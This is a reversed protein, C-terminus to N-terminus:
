VGLRTFIAFLVIFFEKLVECGFVDGMGREESFKVEKPDIVVTHPIQMM